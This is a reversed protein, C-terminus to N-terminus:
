GDVVVTAAVVGRCDEGDGDVADVSDGVGGLILYM